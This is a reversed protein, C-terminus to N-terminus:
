AQGGAEGAPIGPLQASTVTNRDRLWARVHELHPCAAATGAQERACVPYLQRWEEVTRWAPRTMDSCADFVACRTTPIELPKQM